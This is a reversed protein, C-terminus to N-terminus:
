LVYFMFLYCSLKSRHLGSSCVSKQPVSHNCNAQTAGFSARRLKGGALPADTASTPTAAGGSSDEGLATRRALVEGFFRALQTDEELHNYKWASQHRAETTPFFAKFGVINKSYRRWVCFFSSSTPM